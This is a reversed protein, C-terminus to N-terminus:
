GLGRLTCAHAAGAPQAGAVAELVQVEACAGWGGDEGQSQMHLKPLCTLADHHAQPAPAPRARAHPSGLLRRTGLLVWSKM